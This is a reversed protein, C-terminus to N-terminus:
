GRKKYGNEEPRGGPWGNEPPYLLIIRAKKSTTRSARQGKQLKRKKWTGMSM